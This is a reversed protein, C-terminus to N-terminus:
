QTADRKFLPLWVDEHQQFVVRVPMDIAVEEPPCDVINTLFRLGAQEVLEVIAIVFPVDLAPDWAQHNVTFTAVRGRGSVPQPGVDLGGCKPCLPTPPHFWRECDRCRFILLEGAAGGRWFPESEATLQPLKRVMTM